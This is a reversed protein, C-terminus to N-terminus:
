SSRISTLRLNRVHSADLLILCASMSVGLACVQITQCRLKVSNLESSKRQDSKHSYSPSSAFLGSEDITTRKKRAAKSLHSTKQFEWACQKTLPCRPPHRRTRAMERARL